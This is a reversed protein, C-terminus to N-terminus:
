AIAMGDRIRAGIVDGLTTDRAPSLQVHAMFAQEYPLLGSTVADVENAIRQAVDLLPGDIRVLNGAWVFRVRCREGQCDLPATDCSTVGAPALAALIVTRPTM